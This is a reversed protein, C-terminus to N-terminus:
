NCLIKFAESKEEQTTASELTRKFLLQKKELEIKNLEKLGADILTNYHIEIEDDELERKSKLNKFNELLYKVISNEEDLKELIVKDMQKIQNLIEKHNEPYDNERINPISKRNEAYILIAKDFFNGEPLSYISNSNNQYNELLEVSKKDVNGIISKIVNIPVLTFSSLRQLYSNRLLVDPTKNLFKGFREIIFYPDTQNTEIYVKKLLDFIYDLYLVPETLKNEKNNGLYDCPDKGEPVVTIFLNRHISPNKEFVLKGANRGAKDDDLCLIFKGSAKDKFLMSIKNIHQKDLATGSIAVTNKYGAEIMAAVDFQGEVLYVANEKIIHKRAQNFNYIERSKQFIISNNSNVYKRKKTDEETLARGTFGEIKNDQSQFYFMLRNSIPFYVQGENGKLLYGLDRIIEPSIEKKSIYEKLYSIVENTDKPAYGYRVSSTSLGRDTIMKKAPHSDSLELFKNEFFKGLLSTLKYAEKLNRQKKEDEPSLKLQINNREALTTIATKFDLGEKEMVYDIISGHKQCGFCHYTQTDSFVSFSPTKEKHFPCLGMGGQPTRKLEIGDKELYDKLDVKEKIVASLEKFSSVEIAM